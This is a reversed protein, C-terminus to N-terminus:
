ILLVCMSHRSYIKKSMCLYSFIVTDILINFADWQILALWAAEPTENFNNFWLFFVVFQEDNINIIIQTTTTAKEMWFNRINAKCSTMMWWSPPRQKEKMLWIPLYVDGLWLSCVFNMSILCFQLLSRCKPSAYQTHFFFFFHLIKYTFHANTIYKM